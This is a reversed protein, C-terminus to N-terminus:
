AGKPKNLKDEAERSKKTLDRQKAALMEDGQRKKALLLEQQQNTRLRDSESPEKPKTPSGHKVEELVTEAHTVMERIGYQGLVILNQTMGKRLMGYTSNTQLWAENIAKPLVGEMVYITPQMYGHEFLRRRLTRIAAYSMGSIDRYPVDPHAKQVTGEFADRLQGAATRSTGFLLFAPKRSRTSETLGMHKRVSDYIKRAIREVKTPVGSRFTTWDDRECANRLKTGSMGAVGSLKEDRIGPVILVGYKKFPVYKDFTQFEMMQDSGVVVWVADFGMRKVMELADIPTRLAKNGSVPLGPFLLRLFRVKEVFPLPNRSPDQTPSPFLIPTAKRKGAEFRLFEVLRAHGVSPPQFRGFAIVAPRKVRIVPEDEEIARLAAEDTYKANEQIM